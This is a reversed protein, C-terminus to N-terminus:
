SDALESDSSSSAEASSRTVAITTAYSVDKPGVCSESCTRSWPSRTGSRGCRERRAVSSSSGGPASAGGRWQGRGGEERVERLGREPAKMEGRM